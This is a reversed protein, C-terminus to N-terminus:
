LVANMDTGSTAFLVMFDPHQSKKGDLAMRLAQKVAVRPDEAASWGTGIEEDPCVVEQETAPKMPVLKLGNSSPEMLITLLVALCAAGAASAGIILAIKVNTKV